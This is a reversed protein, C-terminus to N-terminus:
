NNEMEFTKMFDVLKQVGERPMANYISARMGGVTRHGKLNVFSKETAQKIFSANLDDSPLVFPVNMLSRHEPVVTGKFLASEDLFDYLIAAKEENLKQMAAVGGQGDLWEFMLKAMYIGYCPPTNYLSKADVHTKYKFMTPTIDMADGVLDKRIIVITVGAPGINKQAGAYIIGFRSVDTVESLINSSM